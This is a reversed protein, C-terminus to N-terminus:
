NTAVILAAGPAALLPPGAICLLLGLGGRKPAWVPQLMGTLASAIGLALLVFGLIRM